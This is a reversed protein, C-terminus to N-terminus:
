VIHSDFEVNLRNLKISLMELMNEGSYLSENFPVRMIVCVIVFASLLCVTSPLLLKIVNNIKDVNIKSLM